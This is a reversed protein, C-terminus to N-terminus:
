SVCMGLIAHSDLRRSGTGERANQVGPGGAALLSWHEVVKYSLGLNVGTYAKADIADPTQHYVEVSLALRDTLTRQMALGSQRFSRQAPEPNIDYGGGGFVSWPGFDKEVWVPPL